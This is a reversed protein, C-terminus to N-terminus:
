TSKASQAVNKELIVHESIEALKSILEASPSADSVLEEQKYAQYDSLFALVRDRNLESLCVNKGVGELRETTSRLLLCPVGLYFTEEQVSGGDTMVFQSNRVLHLFAVHSLLPLTKVGASILVSEFDYSELRKVTPPHLVFLVPAIKNAEII